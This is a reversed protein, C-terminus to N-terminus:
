RPVYEDVRFWITDVLRVIKGGGVDVLGDTLLTACDLCTMSVIWQRAAPLARIRDVEEEIWGPDPSYRTRFQDLIEVGTSLGILEVRRGDRFVFADGDRASLPRTRPPANGSNPGTSEAIALLRRVRATDPHSWDTTYYIWRPTDLAFVYVPEGRDVALSVRSLSSRMLTASVQPRWHYGADIAGPLALLGGVTAFAAPSWRASLGDSVSEVGAVLLLVILPALFLCTRDVLPYARIAAATWLLVFPAATLVVAWAGHRRGLRVLGIVILATFVYRLSTPYRVNSGTLMAQLLFGTRARLHQFADRFPPLLFSQEWYHQMFASHMTARQFVAWNVGVILLWAAAIGTARRLVVGRADRPALLLAVLSPGSVFISPASLLPAVVTALGFRLWAGRTPAATRCCPLAVALLLAVVFADTSYQKFVASFEFTLPSVSALVAALVAARPSVLSGAVRAVLPITALGALLPLLRLAYENVGGAATAVRSLWLFLIPASQELQLPRALAGFGRLAVNLALM